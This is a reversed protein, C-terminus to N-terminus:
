RSHQPSPAGGVAKGPASQRSAQAKLAGIAYHLRIFRDRQPDRLLSMAFLPPISAALKFPKLHAPTGEGKLDAMLAETVGGWYARKRIWELTLREASVKHFAGISGAYSTRMGSKKLRWHLDLEEGSLLSQGNRGLAENFPRAGPLASRRYIINAGFMSKAAADEIDEKDEVLSLFISWRWGVQPPKSAGPWKGVLRGGIVGIDDPARSVAALLKECYDDFPVADDDLFAIWDGAAAAVAANRAASLGPQDLRILRAFGGAGVHEAIRSAHSESSFSDVVILEVDRGDLQPALSDLCDRLDDFRNHTCICISVSVPRGFDASQDALRHM